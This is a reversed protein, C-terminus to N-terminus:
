GILLLIGLLIPISMKLNSLLSRAAEKLRSTRM